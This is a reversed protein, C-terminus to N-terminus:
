SVGLQSRWDQQYPRSMLLQIREARGSESQLLIQVAERLQDWCPDSRVAEDARDLRDLAAAVELVKARMPLFESKM